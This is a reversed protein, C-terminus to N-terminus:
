AVVALVTVKRGRKIGLINAWKKIASLLENLKTGGVVANLFLFLKVNREM